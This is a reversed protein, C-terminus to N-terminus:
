LCPMGFALTPNGSAPIRGLYCKAYSTTKVSDDGHYIRLNVSKRLGILEISIMYAKMEM